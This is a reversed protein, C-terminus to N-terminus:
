ENELIQTGYDRNTTKYEIRDLGDAELEQRVMEEAEEESDAKVLTYGRDDYYFGVKYQKSNVSKELYIKEPVEKAKELEIELDEMKDAVEVMYGALEEMDLRLLALGNAGKYGGDSMREIIKEVM